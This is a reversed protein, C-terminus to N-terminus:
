EDSFYVPLINVSNADQGTAFRLLVDTVNIVRFIDNEHDTISHPHALHCCAACGLPGEGEVTEFGHSQEERM